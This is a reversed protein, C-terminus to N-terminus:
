FPAPEKSNEKRKDVAHQNNETYTCLEMNWKENCLGNSNKHHVLEDETPQMIFNHMMVKARKRKIGKVKSGRPKPNLTIDRVAYFSKKAELIHWKFMNLRAFDEDDVTAVMGRTLKIEKM